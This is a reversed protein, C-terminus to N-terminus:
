LKKLPVIENMFYMFFELESMKEGCKYFLKGYLIVRGRPSRPYQSVLAVVEGVISTAYLTFLINCSNSMHWDVIRSSSNDIILIILLSFLFM